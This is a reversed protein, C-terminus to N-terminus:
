INEYIEERKYFKIPYRDVMGVDIFEVYGMALFGLETTITTHLQRSIDYLIVNDEFDASHLVLFTTLMPEEKEMSENVIAYVGYPNNKFLAKLENKTLHNDIIEYTKKRITIDAPFMLDVGELFITGFGVISNHINTYNKYCYIKM